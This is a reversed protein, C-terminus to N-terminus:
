NKKWSIYMYSISEYNLSTCIGNYEHMYLQPMDHRQLQKEADSLHSFESRLPEYVLVETIQRPQLTQDQTLFIRINSTLVLAHHM